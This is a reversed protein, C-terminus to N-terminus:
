DRHHETLTCGHTLGNEEDAIAALIVDALIQERGSCSLFVQLYPWSLGEHGLVGGVVNDIVEAL